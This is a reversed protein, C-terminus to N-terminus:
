SHLGIEGVEQVDVPVGDLESPLLSESDLMADAVKARVMVVIAVEPTAQNGVRKFGVGVGVVNPHGLLFAEHTQKVQRARQIREQLDPPDGETM